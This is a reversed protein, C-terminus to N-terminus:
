QNESQYSNLLWEISQYTNDRVQQIDTEKIWKVETIGEEIQPKLKKEESYMTFWYSVKLIDRNKEEYIHYTAPLAQGLKLQDIGCEEMVERLSAIERSEGSEIKGKPLDWKEFRYIFLIENCDNRVLGGAAEIVKFCQAFEHWLVSIDDHYIVVEKKGEIFDDLNFNRHKIHNWYILNKLRLKKVDDTLIISTDNKFITYMQLM